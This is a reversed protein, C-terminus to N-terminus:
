PRPQWALGTTQTRADMSDKLVRARGGSAPILFITAGSDHTHGFASFAIMRGDPSFAVAPSPLDSVPEHVLRRVHSGDSRATYLDGRATEYAISRGGPAVDFAVARAVLRRPSQGRTGMSWIGGSSRLFLIRRGTPAFHPASGRVTPSVVVVGSGTLDSTVITGNSGGGGTPQQVYVIRAGNPSFSAQTDDTTEHDVAVPHTADAGALMIVRKGSSDPQDWLLQTGDPSYTVDYWNSCVNGTDDEPCYGLQRAARGRSNYTTLSAFGGGGGGGPNWEAWAIRGNRGHYTAGAPTASIAAFGLAFLM